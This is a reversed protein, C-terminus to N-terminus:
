GRTGNRERRLRLIEDLLRAALERKTGTGLDARGDDGWLLVLRNPVNGFGREGGVDNVAIADLNKRALKERANAELSQTEAAFGVLFLEDRKTAGLGALVDPNRELAISTVEETKKVKEAHAAAPRWDAVAATAIAITAGGARERVAADMERATTVRTTRAAAPPELATPGLVLDVDAGRALAERALEIGQTGTSANSLFRVPDIAERTPGATILVREGVLDGTRRVAGAIAALLADEDALRGPGYEREALFGVGPEVITAGRARLTEINRRTAEHALMASNMAPAVVLPAATALAVNTLLDDAIGLALKAITNATAPVIALLECERALAIHPIEHVREWASTHVPRRALAAFTAAGVFRLADETMVVDLVAGNQVLRSALAAAKYAAIGGTVGLVIRRDKM